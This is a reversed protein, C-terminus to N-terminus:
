RPEVVGLGGCRKCSLGMQSFGRQVTIVGTGLCNPCTQPQNAQTLCYDYAAQVQRFQEPDGGRDPHLPSILQRYAQKIEAVTAGPALGLVALQKSM